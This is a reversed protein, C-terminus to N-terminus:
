EDEAGRKRKVGHSQLYLEWLDGVEGPASLLTENKSLGSATGMRIYHARTM